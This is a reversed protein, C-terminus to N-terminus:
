KTFNPKLPGLFDFLLYKATSILNSSNKFKNKQHIKCEVKNKELVISTM